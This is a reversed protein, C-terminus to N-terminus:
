EEIRPRESLPTQVDYSRKVLGWPVLPPQYYGGIVEGFPDFGLRRGGDSLLVRLVEYPLVDNCPKPDRLSQDGVIPHLEIGVKELTEALLM